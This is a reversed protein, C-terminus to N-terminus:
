ERKEYEKVKRYFTSKTLGLWKMVQVASYKGSKWYQYYREFDPSTPITKRGKYKGQLKAQAIGEKQRDLTNERELEYLAAFVTIMFKGTPTNTDINEKISVFSVDKESLLDLLHLFDKTNRAFRSISEVVICDGSRVFSLMCKLQIRDMDKGSAKDMFLKEIGLQQMLVEQRITNQEQTSVRVYGVKM